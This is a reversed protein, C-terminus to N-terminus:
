QLECFSDAQLVATQKSKKEADAEGELGHKHKAKQQTDDGRVAFSV